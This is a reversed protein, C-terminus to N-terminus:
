KGKQLVESNSLALLCAEARQRASATALHCIWNGRLASSPKLDPNFPRIITELSDGYVHHGCKEVVIKEVEAISNLDACLLRASVNAQGRFNQIWYRGDREDVKFGALIGLEKGLTLDDLNKVDEVKLKTTEVSM